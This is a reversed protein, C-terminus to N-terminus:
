NEETAKASCTKEFSPLNVTCETRDDSMVLKTDTGIGTESTMTVTKGTLTTLYQSQLGIIIRFTAYDKVVANQQKTWEHIHEISKQVSDDTTGYGAAVPEFQYDRYEDYNQEIDVVIQEDLPLNMRETKGSAQQEKLDQQRQQEALEEAAVQREAELKADEEAKRQAEIARAKEEVDRQEQAAIRESPTLEIDTMLVAGTLLGGGIFLTVWFTIIIGSLKKLEKSELALAVLFIM